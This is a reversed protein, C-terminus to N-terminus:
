VRSEDEVRPRPRLVEADRTRLRRLVRRDLAAEAAVARVRPEGEPEVQGPVPNGLLYRSPVLRMAGTTGAEALKPIANPMRATAAPSPETAGITMDAVVNAPDACNAAVDTRSLPPLTSAATIAATRRLARYRAMLMATASAKSPERSLRNKSDCNITSSDQATACRPPPRM